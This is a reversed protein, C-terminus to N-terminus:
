RHLLHGKARDGPLAQRRPLPDLGRCRPLPSGSQPCGRAVIKAYQAVHFDRDLIYYTSTPDDVRIKPCRNEMDPELRAAVFGYTLYQDAGWYMQTELQSVRHYYEGIRQKRSARRKDAETKMQGASCSLAPLPAIVESLDRAVGDIFNAVISQPYRESFHDPWLDQIEGDRVKRAERMRRDRGHSEREMAIVSDRIKDSIFGLGPL